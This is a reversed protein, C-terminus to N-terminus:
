DLSEFVYILCDPGASGWHGEGIGQPQKPGSLSDVPTEASLVLRAPNEEEGDVGSISM